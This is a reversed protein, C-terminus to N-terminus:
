GAIGGPWPLQVFRESTAALGTALPGGDGRRDGGCVGGDGGEGVEAASRSEGVLIQWLREARLDPRRPIHQRCRNDRDPDELLSHQRVFWRSRTSRAIIRPLLGCGRCRFSAIGEARYQGGAPGLTDTDSQPDAQRDSGRESRTRGPGVKRRWVGRGAFVA